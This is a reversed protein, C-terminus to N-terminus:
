QLSSSEIRRCIGAAFVISRRLGERSPHRRPSRPLPGLIQADRSDLALADWVSVAVLAMVTMSWAAYLLEIRFVQERGHPEADPVSRESIAVVAADSVFLGGTILGCM